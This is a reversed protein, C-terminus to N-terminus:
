PALAKLPATTTIFVQPCTVHPRQELYCLIADGVDQPLPLRHGRRNKGVVQITAEDWNLDTLKLGAVDGARLGLRSLLLLVARDRVGVLTSLDCSAIIRGVEEAPLYKPLSALRWRAITPIAQDLDPACCGKAILFRVFM